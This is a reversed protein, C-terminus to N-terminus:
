AEDGPKVSNRQEDELYGTVDFDDTEDVIAQLEGINNQCRECVQERSCDECASVMQAVGAKMEDEHTLM